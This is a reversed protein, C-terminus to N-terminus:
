EFATEVEKEVWQSAVSHESLVLLLKDHIRISEDIRVRIKDGIKMDEPAFWCRVKNEQLDSHLRRAFAEDKSSYSIFCSYYEFAKVTLSGMYTIFNDPVGCGRLFAEPIKGRSRYITHIDIYSPGQHLVTELGRAVSLDLLAFVTEGTLAASFDTRRLNARSLNAGSLDAGSLNARSLNAWSLNARSLFAERFFEGRLLASGLNAGKLNAGKLNAGSLNAGSLKAESLNAGSLDARIFHADSLDPRTDPNERRWQNWGLVGQELIRLHEENAM